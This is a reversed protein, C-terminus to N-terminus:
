SVLFLHNYIELNNKIPTSIFGVVKGSYGDRACIHTVGYMVLKENRDIHLRHGFYSVHYPIPNFRRHANSRHAQHYGPNVPQLLKGVRGEVGESALLGCMTKRGYTAMVIPQCHQCFLTVLVSQILYILDSLPTANIYVVSSRQTVQNTLM